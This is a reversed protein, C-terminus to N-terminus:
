SLFSPRLSKGQGRLLSMQLIFFTSCFLQRHLRHVHSAIMVLVSLVTSFPRAACCVGADAEPSGPEVISVADSEVPIAAAAAAAVAEVRSRPKEDEMSGNPPAPIVADDPDVQPDVQTPAVDDPDHQAPAIDDAPDHVAAIDRTADDDSNSSDRSFVRAKKNSSKRPEDDSEASEVGALYEDIISTDTETVRKQDSAKGTRDEASETSSQSQGRSRKRNRPEGTGAGSGDGDGSPIQPRGVSSSKSQVARPPDRKAVSAAGPRRQIKISSIGAVSGSPKAPTSSASATSGNTAITAASLAQAQLPPRVCVDSAYVSSFFLLLSYGLQAHM